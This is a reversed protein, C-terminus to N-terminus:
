RSENTIEFMQDLESILEQLQDEAVKLQALNENLQKDLESKEAELKRIRDQMDGVQNTMEPIKEDAIRLQKELSTALRLLKSDLSTSKRDPVAVKRRPQVSVFSAPIVDALNKTLMEEPVRLRTLTGDSYDWVVHTGDHLSIACTTDDIAAINIPLSSLQKSATAKSSSWVKCLRDRGATVIEGSASLAIGLTGEVHAAMSKIQKGTHLDWRRITGDEGATMCIDDDAPFSIDHVAGKHGRLSHILEGSETEWLYVGGDRDATAFVLGNAGFRAALVWDTHKELRHVVEGSETSLVKIVREPGGLVVRKGDPSLDAAMVVDFEDGGEWLRQGTVADWLVVRGSQAHVGGGALLRTGDATFRLVQPEGEPFPLVGKLQYSEADFLLVQLQAGVAILRQKVNTALAQNATTHLGHYVPGLSLNQSLSPLLSIDAEEQSDSKQLDNSAPESMSSGPQIGMPKSSENELLGDMIWQKLTRLHEDPIKKGGPPMAPEEEHAAVLYLFSDAADGGVVVDGSESGRLISAYSSLDLGARSRNSNHCGTCHKKLIRRIHERYTILEQACANSAMYSMALLLGLSVRFCIELVPRNNLPM